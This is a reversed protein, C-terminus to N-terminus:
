GGTFVNESGGATSPACHAGGQSPCLSDPSASDPSHNVSLINNVYVNNSSAILSGGGHSNPDGNVAVLLNNAFVTKNGVVVTNAGCTRPDTNRHVAPM